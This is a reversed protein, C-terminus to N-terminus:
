TLSSALFGFGSVLMIFAVAFFLLGLFRMSRLLALYGFGFTYYIKHRQKNEESHSGESDVVNIGNMSFYDDLAAEELRNRTMSPLEVECFSEEQTM